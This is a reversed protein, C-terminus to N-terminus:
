TGITPWQAIWLPYYLKGDAIALLIDFIGVIESISHGMQRTREKTSQEFVSINM